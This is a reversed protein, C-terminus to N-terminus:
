QRSWYETTGWPTEAVCVQRYGLLKWVRRNTDTSMVSDIAHCQVGHNEITQDDSEVAWTITQQDRNVSETVRLM